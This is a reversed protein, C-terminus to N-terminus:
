PLRPIIAEWTAPNTWYAGHSQPFPQRNDVLVDQVQNPFINAGIYSLFDRLDYINLWQPFHAPLTQGFALSALSNIEYLFPAQSGATILLKVEPIEEKALIDVCAVGGLSHCLLVIPPEAKAIQERIFARIEEGRTQYLLIDGPIPFINNTLKGRRNKVWNTGLKAIRQLAWNGLGLEAEALSLSLTEIVRDRLVADALIVPYRDKKQSELMAQAIIARSVAVGLESLNDGATTLAQEYAESRTVKQLAEPFEEIIGAEVLQLQLEPTAQYDTLRSQLIDGPQEGFPNINSEVPKLALFRLEYLPDRYLQEWLIIETDEQEEGLALTLDYTPISGGKANLKAGLTDGWLCPLLKIDPRESLLKQQVVKFSEEYSAKRESTGHVFIVSSM